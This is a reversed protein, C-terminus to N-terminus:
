FPRGGAAGPFGRQFRARRRRTHDEFAETPGMQETVASCTSHPSPPCRQTLNAPPRPARPAPVVRPTAERRGASPASARAGDSAQPRRVAMSGDPWRQQRVPRDDVEDVYEPREAVRAQLAHPAAAPLLREELSELAARVWPAAQLKSGWLIQTFKRDEKMLYEDTFEDTTLFSHSSHASVSTANQVASWDSEVSPPLSPEKDSVPVATADSGHIARVAPLSTRRRARSPGAAANSPGAAAARAPLPSSVRVNGVMRDDSSTPSPTLSRVTAARPPSNSRTLRERSLSRTRSPGTTARSPGAGAAPASPRSTVREVQPPPPRRAADARIAAHGEQETNVCKLMRRNDGLRLYEQAAANNAFVRGPGGLGDDVPYFKANSDLPVLELPLRELGHRCWDEYIGDMLPEMDVPQLYRLSQYAWVGTSEYWHPLQLEQLLEEGNFVAAHDLTCRMLDLYQTATNPQVCFVRKELDWMLTGTVEGSPYSLLAQVKDQLVKIMSTDLMMDCRARPYIVSRKSASSPIHTSYSDGFSWNDSGEDQHLKQDVGLWSPWKLQDRTVWKQDRCRAFEVCGHDDSPPAPMDQGPYLLTRCLRAIDHRDRYLRWPIPSECFQQFARKSEALVDPALPGLASTRRNDVPCTWTRARQLLAAHSSTRPRPLEGPEVPSPPPSPVPSVETDDIHESRVGSAAIREEGASPPQYPPWECVLDQGFIETTLCVVPDVRRPQNPRKPPTMDVLPLVVQTDMGLISPAHSVAVGSGLKIDIMLSNKLPGTGAALIVDVHCYHTFQTPSNDCRTVKAGTSAEYVTLGLRRVVAISIINCTAGTDMLIARYLMLEGGSSVLALGEYLTANQLKCIPQVQAMLLAQDETLHQRMKERLSDYARTKITGARVHGHDSFDVVGQDSVCAAAACRAAASDVVGDPMEDLPMEEDMQHGATEAAAAAGEEAEQVVTAPM